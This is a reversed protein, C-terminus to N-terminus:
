FKNSVAALRVSIILICLQMSPSICNNHSMSAPPVYEIQYHLDLNKMLEEQPGYEEHDFGYKGFAFFQWSCVVQSAFWWAQSFSQM